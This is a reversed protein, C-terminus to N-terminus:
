HAGQLLLSGTNHLTSTHTASFKVQAGSNALEISRVRVLEAMASQTYANARVLWASTQADLISASGPAATQLQQNIQEAAQLELDALADIELAKKMAAQAEADTMDVLDRVSPPADTSPM